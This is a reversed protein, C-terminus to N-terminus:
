KSSGYFASAYLAAIMPLCRACISRVGLVFDLFADVAEAMRPTIEFFLLDGFALALQAERHPGLIQGLVEDDLRTQARM